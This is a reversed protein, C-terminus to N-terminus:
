EYWDIIQYVYPNKIRKFLDLAARSHFVNSNGGLSYNGGNLGGFLMGGYIQSHGASADFTLATNGYEIVAGHWTSNAKMKLGGKIVLIGWGEGNFAFTGTTKGTTRSTGDLFMIKPHLSDGIGNVNVTNGASSTDYYNAIQRFLDSNNPDTMGPDVKIKPSGIITNMNVGIGATVNLSDRVTRVQIAPVSDPSGPILKGNLDHDHGDITDKSGNYVFTVSDPSIGFAGDFLSPPLPLQKRSMLTTITYITDDFTGKSTLRLSDGPLVVGDVRYTGGELDGAVPFAANTLVSVTDIKRLAIQIANRSIDRSVTYDVYGYTNQYAERNRKNLTASVISFVIIFGLVSIIANSGV